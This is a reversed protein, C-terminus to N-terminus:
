SHSVKLSLMADFLLLLIVLLDLRHWDFADAYLDCLKILSM